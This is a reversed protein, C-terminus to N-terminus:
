SKPETGVQWLVDCKACHRLLPTGAKEDTDLLPGVTGGCDPCTFRRGMRRMLGFLAGAMGVFWIVGLIKQWIVDTVVSMLIALAVGGAIFVALLAGGQRDM